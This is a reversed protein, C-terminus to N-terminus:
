GSWACDGCQRDQSRLDSVCEGQTGPVYCKPTTSKDAVPTCEPAPAPQLEPLMETIELLFNCKACNVFLKKGQAAHQRAENLDVDFTSGCRQCKVVKSEAKLVVPEPEGPAPEQGRQGTRVVRSGGQGMARSAKDMVTQWRRNRQQILSVLGEYEGEDAEELKVGDRHARYQRGVEWEERNPILDEGQQLLQFETPTLGLQLGLMLQKDGQNGKVLRDVKDTVMIALNEAKGMAQSMLDYETLGTRQISAVMQELRRTESSHRDEIQRIEAQHRSERLEALDRRLETLEGVVAGDGKAAGQRATDLELM